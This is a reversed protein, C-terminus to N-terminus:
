DKKKDGHGFPNLKKLKHFIGGKKEEKEGKKEEKKAGDNGRERAPPEADRGPQGTSRRARSHRPTATPTSPSAV